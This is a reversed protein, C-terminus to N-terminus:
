FRQNNLATIVTKHRFFAANTQKPQLLKRSARYWVRSDFVNGLKVSIKPFFFISGSKM